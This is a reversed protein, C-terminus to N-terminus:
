NLNLQIPKDTPSIIAPFLGVEVVPADAELKLGTLSGFDEISDGLSNM